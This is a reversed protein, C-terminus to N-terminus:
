RRPALKYYEGDGAAAREIYGAAILQQLIEGAVREVGRGYPDPDCRVGSESRVFENVTKRSLMVEDGDRFRKLVKQSLSAFSM